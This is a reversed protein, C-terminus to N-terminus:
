VRRLVEPFNNGSELIQRRFSWDFIHSGYRVVMGGLLTRNFRFNVLINSAINKRCWSTLSAKIDGTPPAALTVTISTANDVYNELSEILENLNNQDVSNMQILENTTPSLVPPESKQKPNVRKKILDHTVWRSYDRAEIVLDM